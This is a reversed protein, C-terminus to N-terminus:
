NDIEASLRLKIAVSFQNVCDNKKSWRIYVQLFPFAFSRDSKAAFWMLNGQEQNIYDRNARKLEISHSFLVHRSSISREEVNM